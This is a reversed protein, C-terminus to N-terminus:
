VQLTSYEGVTVLPGKDPCPRPRRLTVGLILGKKGGWRLSGTMELVVRSPDSREGMIRVPKDMFLDGQENDRYTLVAVVSTALSSVIFFLLLCSFVHFM